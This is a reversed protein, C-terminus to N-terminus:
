QAEQKGNRRQRADFAKVLGPVDEMLLSRPEWTAEHSPFGQWKILYETHRGRKTRRKLISEVIYLKTNSEELIIHDRRFVPEAPANYRRLKSIYIVDHIELTPPLELRYSVASLKESIRFPGIYLPQLKHHDKAHFHVRLDKTSLLVMDGVEFSRTLDRQRNAYYSQSTQAEHIADSAQSWLTQMSQVFDVVSQLKVEPEEDHTFAIPTAPDYGYNLFFPSFGTSKQISSNYAFELYPLYTSWDSLNADIFHRLMVVLIGNVRETQGDSEPHATSSFSLRTRLIKFLERWFGSTFKPDRDSVFNKPLGHLRFVHQFYLHATDVADATVHTPIFHAMKTFRDVVVFIADFGSSPPLKVIFDFSVSSWPAVPIDLPHLPGKTPRNSTKNRQCSDCSNTFKQISRQMKPWYFRQRAQLYLKDCGVHGSTPLAHLEYLISQLLEPVRPVCLRHPNSKTYYLLKSSNDYSYRKVMSAVEPAPPLEPNRFHHILAAFLEDKAYLPPIKTKWSQVSVASLEHLQYDPRRSLTDAVINSKGPRYIIEVPFEDLLAVWRAKRGTINRYRQWHTLSEHDTFAQVPHGFLYHRWKKLACVLALLEQEQVPYSCEASNMKRSFFAVPHWRGHHEQLLVAGVAFGSSDTELRFPKDPDPTLLVPTTTLINKLNDFSTQTTDTWSFPTDKRLLSTLPAALRAFGKCFRRYYNALGLFRQIDKVSRPTPWSVISSIKEPDVSIGETSVVHGLFPMSTKCFECKEWKAYLSNDKLIQLVQRIHELHEHHNRSFILIDDLYVIAFPLQGVLRNMLTQFTAPGNSLGFPLVLYEYHGFPTTFATKEIDDPHIRVQSYASRLDLKSFITSGHIRDLLEDTRPIPFMNRVSRKNLMRYDVCFRLSGDKKKVFLVPAGWPSTSPRIHGLELLNTIVKQLERTELTSLRYPAQAHPTAAPLLRIRHDVHRSPPLDKPLDNPFVQPFDQLLQAIDPSVSHAEASCAEIEEDESSAPPSDIWAACAFAPSHRLLSDIQKASVSMQDYDDPCVASWKVSGRSGTLSVQNTRWNIVPNFEALWPKGLIIDYRIPAVDLCLKEEFNHGDTLIGSAMLSSSGASSGDALSLTFIQNPPKLSCEVQHTKAFHSSLLNRQAGCDILVRVPSNNWTLNM